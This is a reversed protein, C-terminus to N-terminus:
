VLKYKSWRREGERVIINDKIMSMLERQITKESCDKIIGMIDKITADTNDRLFDIIQERRSRTKVDTMGGEESVSTRAKVRPTKPTSTYESRVDHTDNEALPNHTDHELYKRMARYVSDIEHLFVALIETNIYRVAHAIRLKSELAILAFKLDTVKEERTVNTSRLTELASHLVKQASAELDSVIVDMQSLTTDTRLTYFVACCIKETKKFIYKFYNVDEITRTSEITKSSTEKIEMDDRQRVKIHRVNTRLTYAM